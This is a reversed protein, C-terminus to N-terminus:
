EQGDATGSNFRFYDFVPTFTGATGGSESKIGAWFEGNALNDDIANRTVQVLTTFSGSSSTKYSGTFQTGSRVFRLYLTTSSLSICDNSGVGNVASNYCLRNGASQAEYKMFLFDNVSSDTILFAIAEGTNAFNVQSALFEIDFDGTSSSMKKMLVPAGNQGTSSTTNHDLTLVGNAITISDFYSGPV